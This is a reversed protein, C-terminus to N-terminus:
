TRAYVQGSALPKPWQKMEEKRDPIACGSNTCPLCCALVIHGLLYFHLGLAVHLLQPWFLLYPRLGGGDLALRLPDLSSM